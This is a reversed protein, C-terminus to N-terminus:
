GPIRVDHIISAKETSLKHMAEKVTDALSSFIHNEGLSKTFGTKKFLLLVSRPVESLFLVTKQRQSQQIEFIEIEEICM